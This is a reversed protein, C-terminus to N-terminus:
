EGEDEIGHEREVFRHLSAHLRGLMWTILPDPASAVVHPVVRCVIGADDEGALNEIADQLGLFFSPFSYQCHSRWVLRLRLIQLPLIGRSVFKGIRGQLLVLTDVGWQLQLPVGISNAM